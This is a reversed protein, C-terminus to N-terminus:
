GVSDKRFLRKYIERKDVGTMSSARAVLSKRDYETNGANCEYGKCDLIVTYEGRTVGHELRDIVESMSGRVAEEHVKTLEKFVLATCEGAIDRIAGMTGSLRRPSEYFIVPIGLACYKKIVRERNVATSPMFGIFVFGPGAIGSVSVACALASPGPVPTVKINNKLAQNVLYAGPDSVGPTGADTILAMSRGQKLYGVLEAYRGSESYRHLSVLRKKIDYRNLLVMSKRTDECAIIDVGRLVTLARVTIDDLNGIPTAVIFLSGTNQM